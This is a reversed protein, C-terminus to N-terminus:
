GDIKEGDPHSYKQGRGTGLGIGIKEFCCKGMVGWPGYVTKGDVFWDVIPRGCGDCNAPIWGSWRKKREVTSPGENIWRELKERTDDM